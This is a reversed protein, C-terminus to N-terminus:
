SPFTKHCLDLGLTPLVCVFGRSVQYLTSEDIFIPQLELESTHKQTKLVVCM